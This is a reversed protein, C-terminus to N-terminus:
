DIAGVDDEAEHMMKLFDAPNMIFNEPPFHKLNGTIQTAKAAVALDYFVRDSEDIMEIESQGFKVFYGKDTVLNLWEKILDGPFYFSPRSLVDTYESVIDDCVDLILKGEYILSIIKASHGTPTMLASVVVNTDIV